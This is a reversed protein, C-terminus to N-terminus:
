LEPGTATATVLEQFQEGLEVIRQAAIGDIVDSATATPKGPDPYQTNNRKQRM